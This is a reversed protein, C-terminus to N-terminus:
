CLLCWPCIESHGARQPEGCYAAARDASFFPPACLRSLQCSGLAAATSRQRRETGPLVELGPSATFGRLKRKAANSAIQIASARGVGAALALGVGAACGPVAPTVPPVSKPPVYGSTVSCLLRPRLSAM